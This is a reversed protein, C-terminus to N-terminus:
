NLRPIRSETGACASAGDANNIIFTRRKEVYEAQGSGTPHRSYGVHNARLQRVILLATYLQSGNVSFLCM